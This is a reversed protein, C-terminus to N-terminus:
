ATETAHAEEHLEDFLSLLREDSVNKEQLYTEFLEHPTLSGRDLPRRDDEGSAETDPVVKIANPFLERIEDGLGARAPERVIVRLYADDAGGSLEKLQALTGKVTRLRRGGALKVPEITAPTKPAAEVVLAYRNMEDDGFDLQLTSGPYYIPCSGIVHQMKHLHGLAVYHATSPWLTSNVWYDFITQATREGGGLEGGVIAVHAMVVNVTDASFADALKDVILSMREEYRSRSSAADEDMLHAAKVIFRQSLWPICVIRAREGRDTEIEVPERAVGARVTVRALDFLPALASMRRDSDHNGPIAVVPAVKSLALLARYVIHEAEPSPASSDFLDGAVLVCDVKERRAVDTLEALM